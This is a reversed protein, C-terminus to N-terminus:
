LGGTVELVAGTIYSSEQQALFLVAHAVDEVSGFKKLPVQQKYKNVLDESLDDILETGIFGPSVCNVTINRKALEKSLSRTLGIQGAKSAAYNSQGEFGFYSCPSTINIIRGYRQGRMKLSAFKSLYFSSNLNTDIVSNWEEPEMMMLLKDRRIGANNVLVDLREKSIEKFFNEIQQYNTVDLQFAIINDKYEENEELFKEVAQKNNNYVVLLKAGEMLFAKSIGKGIGRTGGTVLVTQNEFRNNM